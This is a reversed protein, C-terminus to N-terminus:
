TSARNAALPLSSTVLQIEIAPAASPFARTVPSKHPAVACSRSVIASSFRRIGCPYLSYSCVRLSARSQEPRHRTAASRARRAVSNAYVNAGIAAAAGSSVVRAIVERLCVVCLKPTAVDQVAPRKGNRSALVEQVDLNAVLRAM